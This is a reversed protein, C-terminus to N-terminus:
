TSWLMYGCCIVLLGCCIGVVYVLYDVVHVWLMYCTTWLMYGCCMDLLGCCIGVVYQLYDVVYVLYEVLHIWLMCSTSWLTYGCCIDLLGCSIQIGQPTCTTSHLSYTTSLMSCINHTVWLMYKQQQGCCIGQAGCSIRIGQPNCTTSIKTINHVVNSMHQPHGVVYVRSTTWLMDGVVYSPPTTWLMYRSNDVVYLSNDVVYFGHASEITPFLNKKLMYTTSLMQYTTPTDMVAMHQPSRLIHQPHINHVYLNHTCIHQPHRGYTTPIHQPCCRGTAYTTPTPINHTVHAWLM